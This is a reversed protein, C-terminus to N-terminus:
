NAEPDIWDAASVLDKLSAKHKLVAVSTARLGAAFMLRANTIDTNTFGRAQLGAEIQHWTHEIYM